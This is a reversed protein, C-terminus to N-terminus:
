HWLTVGIALIMLVFWLVVGWFVTDLTRSLDQVARKLRSVNAELNHLERGLEDM